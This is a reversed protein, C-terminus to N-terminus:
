NVQGPNKGELKQTKWKKFDFIMSYYTKYLNYFPGGMFISFCKIDIIKKLDKQINSCIYM